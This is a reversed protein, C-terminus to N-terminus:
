KKGGVLWPAFRNVLLVFPLLGIVIAAVCLFSLIYANSWDLKECVKYFTQIVYGEFAYYFLTNKGMFCFFKESKLNFTCLKKILVIIPLIALISMIIFVFPYTYNGKHIDAENEFLVLLVIYAVASLLAIVPKKEIKEVIIAENKRYLFGASMYFTMIAATELQWPFKIGFVLTDVWGLTAVVVASLLIRWTYGKKDTNCFRVIPYMILFATFICGIFWLDDNKGSIQLLLGKIRSAFSYHNVVCAITLKIGGMLVLPILLHKVKGLLFEGFSKKLSFTYGSAFFFMTIFFPAFFRIYIDPAHSHSLLVFLIMVGKLVDIWVIRKKQSVSEM